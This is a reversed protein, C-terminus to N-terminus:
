ENKRETYSQITTASIGSRFSRSKQKRKVNDVAEVVISDDGCMGDSKEPCTEKGPAYADEKRV